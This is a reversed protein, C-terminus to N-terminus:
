KPFYNGKLLLRVSGIAVAIIIVNTLVFSVIAVGNIFIGPERMAFLSTGQALTAIGFTYAWYGPAFSQERLWRFSFTLATTIFLAYGALAYTIPLNANDGTLVQYAVLLVVPPAMYIGMFNRTKTALGGVTLQQTIVSDMILWSLTGVGLLAFGYNTYGFIGAVLANVLISATYTLFLSPTTQSADREHTWMNSLRFAGYMLNLISGIWFVCVAVSHLYPLIALAVLIISEPILAIFSAQVPDRLEQNAAERFNIWKHVYILLWWVFSVVALLQLIEGVIAPLHWLATANRWANGTEALGLTMAFFSAPALPLVTKQLGKVRAQDSSFANM